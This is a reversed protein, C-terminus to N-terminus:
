TTAARCEVCIIDAGLDTALRRWLSGHLHTCCLIRRCRTCVGGKILDVRGNCRDCNTSLETDRFFQLKAM